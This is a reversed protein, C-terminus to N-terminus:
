FFFLFLYAYLSFIVNCYLILEKYISPFSNLSLSIEHTILWNFDQTQQLKNIVYENFINWTWLQNVSIGATATLFSFSLLISNECFM